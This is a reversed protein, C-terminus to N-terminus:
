PRNKYEFIHNVGNSCQLYLLINLLVENKDTDQFLSLCIKM